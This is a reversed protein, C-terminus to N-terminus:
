NGNTSWHWPESPLNRLGFRGANRSLWQFAPSSRSRIVGGQWTFDVALGQEHMSTGPKATPPSCQSAPKEYIDYDSSGCNARRAAVQQESDRYGGGGFVFGDAEAAALLGELRDGLEAAVTIGRVTVLRIGTRSTGRSSRAGAGAGKTRAALAAERRSIEEALQKDLAALSDAEALRANLREEIQAALGEQRDQARRVEALETSVQQRRGAARTAAEEAAQRQLALDERAARYEELVEARRGTAARFLAQRRSLENVSATDFLVTSEALPNVYARVATATLAKRTATLQEETRREADRARNVESEAARAAQQAALVRAQQARVAADVAALAKEVEADDARLADVEEAIEARDRRLREREARPDASKAAFASTPFAGALLCFLLAALATRQMRRM